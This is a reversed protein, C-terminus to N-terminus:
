KSDAPMIITSICNPLYRSVSDLPRVPSAIFFSILRAGSVARTIRLPTSTSSLALSTIIPSVTTSLGPSRTLTSPVMTDPRVLTFSAMSVPSLMGTSLSTPSLTYAPVMFPSPATSNVAVPTPASVASPRMTCITSSACPDFAGMARMASATAAYKTGATPPTAINANMSHSTNARSKASATLTNMDTSTIAQGHASPRAVGVAIITAAPRPASSPMNTFLPSASSVAPLTFATISSM